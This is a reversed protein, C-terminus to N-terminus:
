KKYWGVMAWFPSGGHRDLLFRGIKEHEEVGLYTEFALDELRSMKRTRDSVVRFVATAAKDLDERTWRTPTSRRVIRNKWVNVRLATLDDVRLRM